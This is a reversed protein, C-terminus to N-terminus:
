ASKALELAQNTQKNVQNLIIQVSQQVLHSQEPLVVQLNLGSERYEM